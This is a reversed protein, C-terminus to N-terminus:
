LLELIKERIEKVLFPKGTTKNLAITDILFEARLLKNLQGLNLEPVLIKDFQKLIEGLNKQWPFLYRLHIASVSKNQAQLDEVATLITGYTSGWGVVLVKGSSQGLIELPPLDNAIGAIKTARLEVMKQHNAPDYSVYGTVSDKELGGIRHELGPTGPIAWLRALTEPNRTYPTFGDIDTHFNFKIEPLSDVAPVLWPESGTALSGESLVIVPTMYKLAIRFAEIIIAFCDGPSAPALIPIPCEGHRGYMATLLDAQETKTPMGTSPGARQVNIIVLPLETIVALGMAESKLDFGPGSTSTLALNGGYAAGITACLAAIEDEAQFVKIGYEEYKALQQLINSAPTIPYGSLLMSKKAKLTVALCGLGLAENGTVQRYHGPALQAKKVTYQETFLETTLAYNFGAQLAARNAHEVEPRNKFKQTLWKLTPELPRNYLWFVVGLAFFNKCKTAGSHSLGSDKVANLTLETIPLSFVRYQNLEGSNLPNQSYGAKKLEKEEFSNTNIILLGNTELDKLNVKLAAPNMAILVQLQDGPTHVEQSSFSLQFGSVGPLTGAPARIEAPFDAFTHVDNGFIASTNTFQTGTLQMGDGSDGAFRIVVTELEIKPSLSRSTTVPAHM